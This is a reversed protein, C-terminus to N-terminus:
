SIGAIEARTDKDLTIRGIDISHGCHTKWFKTSILTIGDRKSETVELRSPCAKGIKNSGMSKMAREDKAQSKHSYSRHCNYYRKTTGDRLVKPATELTYMALTERQM